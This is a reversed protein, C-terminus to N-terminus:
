DVQDAASIAIAPKEFEFDTVAQELSDHRGFHGTRQELGEARLLDRITAHPEVIRLRVNRAILEQHLKALMAAGAVDVHPSNSLDCVVVRLRNTTQIRGLVFDYVHEVNFYLLSSEVRFIFLGPILENDSHREVDSYRRTGPIRGLVAVHPKAATSLLMLISAVVALLVGKLIGLLLVGTFAVMAVTFEYRSVRWLHRLAAVDILSRVAVLVIAALVVTPLTRFLDTLYILCLGITTSAFILALPTQAGAKDNVASQSLGGAIPFGQSLAAGLNAAGLALLEQRPRIAYGHRAALTRAASIGEVFSLLFCAAALPIVGDIDRIRLAPIAFEPLGTPLTGVTAAGYKTLDAIAVFGTASAVVVLATPRGPLFRDGLLLLALAALGLALVVLNTQSLQGALVWVREFFHDGGGAVGFLKPLQTLAITLAAGAKFGTLITDSIFNVLGSLQLLWALGSLAAAVLAALSAIVAARVPDGDSMGGVTAGVLMAVASTPGVALQRSTGFLAYLFGGVFYCYIGHHPPLGALSAYALSVPIAYAALTVGAVIDSRLWKAQYRPLWDLIPFVAALGGQAGVLSRLHNSISKM